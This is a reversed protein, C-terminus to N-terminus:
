LTLRSPDLEQLFARTAPAEFGTRQENPLSIEAYLRQLGKCDDVDYWTPLLYTELGLEDARTLTQELVQESSWDIQQFLQPREAKLGILYYGGDESPGLVVKEHSQALERAAETFIAPPVTPSDSDILCVTAFGVGLLDPVANRLREGFTAGRQPILLFDHPLIKQYALEAGVPMYCGIGQTNDGAFSIAAATDQLFCRNLNAAEAPTLPPTLRTKVEGPRPVKTMITLACRGEALPDRKHPSLVRHYVSM